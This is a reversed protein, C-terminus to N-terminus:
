EKIMWSKKPIKFLIDEIIIRECIELAQITEEEQLSILEEPGIPITKM